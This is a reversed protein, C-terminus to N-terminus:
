FINAKCICNSENPGAFMTDDSSDFYYGQVIAGLTYKHTQKTNLVSLM